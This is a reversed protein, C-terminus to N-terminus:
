CGVAEKREAAMREGGHAENCAQAGVGAEIQRQAGDEEIWGRLRQGLRESLNFGVAFGRKFRAHSALSVAREGQGEALLSHPREVLKLAGRGAVVHGEGRAQTAREVRTRQTLRQVRKDQAMFRQARDDQRALTGRGAPQELSVPEIVKQHDLREIAAETFM